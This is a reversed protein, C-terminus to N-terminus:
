NSAIQVCGSLSMISVCQSAHNYSRTHRQVVHKNVIHWTDHVCKACTTDDNSVCMTLLSSCYCVVLWWSTSAVVSLEKMVIIRQMIVRINRGKVGRVDLMFLGHIVDKLARLSCRVTYSHHYHWDCFLELLVFLYEAFAFLSSWSIQHSVHL